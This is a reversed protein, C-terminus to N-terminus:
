FTFIQDPVVAEGDAAELATTIVVMYTTAPSLPYSPVLYLREANPDFVTTVALADGTQTDVLHAAGAATAASIPGSTDVYIPTNISFGDLTRLGSKLALTSPSDEPCLPIDLTGTGPNRALDNPFPLVSQC